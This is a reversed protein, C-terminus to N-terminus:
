ACPLGKKGTMVKEILDFFKKQQDKDLMSKFELMHAVVARQMEEQAQNIEAGIETRCFMQRGKLQNQLGDPGSFM